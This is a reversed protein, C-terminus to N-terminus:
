FIDVIGQDNFELIRSIQLGTGWVGHVGFGGDKEHVAAVAVMLQGPETFPLIDPIGM